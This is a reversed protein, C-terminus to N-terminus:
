RLLQERRAYAEEFASTLRLDNYNFGGERTFSGAMVAGLLAFSRNDDLTEAHEIEWAARVRALTAHQNKLSRHLGFHFSQMRSANHCHMGAPRLIDPVNEAKMVIDHGSDVNRDCYLNDASNSFIVNNTFCNLGNIFGNTYYDHLPAQIGTVRPNAKIINCLEILVRDNALVTDADVKVFLSFTTNQVARWADWLRNHAEKEPLNEIICHEVEVDIQSMIARKCADFDNEGCYMTGIFIKPVTM